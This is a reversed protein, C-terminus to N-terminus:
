RMVELRGGRRLKVGSLGLCDSEKYDSGQSISAMSSRETINGLARGGPGVKM